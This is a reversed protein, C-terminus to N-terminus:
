CTGNCHSPQYSKPNWRFRPDAGSHPGHDLDPWAHCTIPKFSSSIEKRSPFVTNSGNQDPRCIICSTGPGGPGFFSRRRCCLDGDENEMIRLTPSNLGSVWLLVNAVIHDLSLYGNMFKCFTEKLQPKRNLNNEIIEKMFYSFLGQRAKVLLKARKSHYVLRTDAKLMEILRNNIFCNVRILMRESQSTQLSRKSLGSDINYLVCLSTSDSTESGYVKVAVKKVNRKVYVTRWWHAVISSVPRKGITM